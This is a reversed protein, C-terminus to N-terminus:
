KSLKIILNNIEELTMGGEQLYNKASSIFNDEKKLEEVDDTGYITEMFSNFYLDVISNYKEPTSEKSIKFYNKYTLMYDECMQDYNAGLLAELLTCVFGTRDKGEMCHIYYPGDNNLTFKFGTAVKQKYVDSGYASSMSLLVIKNQKYLSKTYTSEFDDQKIYSEMNDQSDALDIICKINNKNLLDDTIKARKRSNDVPSAGRYVLNEKLNGCSLSRFNSFEEDSSYESRLLSYSQSLAQQTSLYKGKTNLDINVTYSEDLGVSTWVGVNNLTFIVYDNSPYGVIVPYGNKVYYGNFYPVDQLNYGNSFSINCSDGFSFGLNNFDDISINIQVADYKTDHSISYNTLNPKNNSNCSNLGFLLPFMLFLKYKSKM